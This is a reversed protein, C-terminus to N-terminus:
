PITVKPEPMQDWIRSDLTRGTKKKFVGGWQKFFFPVGNKCATTASTGCGTSTWRGHAQDQNAVSLSGTSRKCPSALCRDSCPNSLCFNRIPTPTESGRWGVWGGKPSSAPPRALHETDLTAQPRAARGSGATQHTGPLYAAIRPEHRRVRDRHVDGASEQPISRVHLQRVCPASAAM